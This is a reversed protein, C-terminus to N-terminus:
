VIRRRITESATLTEPPNVQPSDVQYQNSSTNSSHVPCESAAFAAQQNSETLSVIIALDLVFLYSEERIGPFVALSM